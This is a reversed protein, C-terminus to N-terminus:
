YFTYQYRYQVKYDYLAYYVEARQVIGKEDYFYRKHSYEDAMSDYWMEKKLQGDPTYEFIKSTHVKDRPQEKHIEVLNNNKNYQYTKHYIFNGKQYKIEDTKLNDQNFKYSIKKTRNGQPDFEKHEILNGHGDYKNVVRSILKGQSNLVRINAVNGDHSFVREQVLNGDLDKKVIHNLRGQDNYRYDIIRHESGNYRDERIKKGQDNYDITQKFRIEDEEASYNVYETKRQNQDYKYSLEQNIDGRRYYEEKTVNGNRDFEKYSNKYGEESPEGDDYKHNYQVQSKIDQEIITPKDLAEPLQAYGQFISSLFFLLVVAFTRMSGQFTTPENIKM